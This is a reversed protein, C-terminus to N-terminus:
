KINTNKMLYFHGDEAGVLVDKIDNRNWDVMTPCTTHGALKKKSLNGRDIYYVFGNKQKINELFSINTSNIIIDLDGDNDWDVMCLKRRGSSGAQKDNLRLPETQDEKIQYFIRKGPKLWYENDKKFREFFSLFGEHDLMVLDMLGDHNWDIAIPTTRWQTVLDNSNPNWWNWSPKPVHGQWDVRMNYPGELNSLDGINKYWQIKGWISNIIIDLKGDQDWDAVTPVTYGWKAECPGQISGNPGAQIRIPLNNCKLFVPAAWVPNEGGSLNEIFALDGASNGVILDEDGDKDWDVSYPTALAGFKLNDAKQQFYIPNDFLPMHNINKGTNRFYAIRGDEEGALLDIHGDRNFDVAVPIFMELRIKLIGFNNQLFRGKKFLPRNRTGINEYWTLKDLFEGCILDLDGDGDFDYMNPCPYGYTDIPLKDAKIKGKNVYKGNQNEIYYVYGHLPGNKWKGNLDFANDWGYDSWEDIGIIIDLDGDNDYDVYSWKNSRCRKIDKIPDKDINIESFRSFLNKTFDVYEGKPSLIKLANDVYSPNISNITDAIKIPKEFFPNNNSGINKYFYTGRNPISSCSIVLDMLGDNDYDVPITIPWLGVSLDVRLNPNNYKIIKFQNQDNTVQKNVLNRFNTIRHFTLYNADHFSHAGGISDDYATRSVFVLDSNDYMWDVYQFAHNKVDQHELIYKHTKWTKLDSSSCIALTNRVSAPKLNKYNPLIFNILSWYRKSKNDYRITFKKSAGPMKIFGNKENFSAIKGDKSIQVFAAYEDTSEPIDVRLIDVLNGNPDIVANGELWGGFKKDLYSPNYCLTNTKQWNKAKLLNSNIPASIMMASFRKGWEKTPSKADEFARWIRGENVVIPVPATHYEGGFILGNNKNKPKTWTFGSDKSKRIVINGYEKDTGIIYLEKNITFLTSWYQGSIVSAFKWNEGKDESVFIYTSNTSKPGFDDHSSVYIGNSLICISPSGIYKGSNAPFHDIVVGLPNQISNALCVINLLLILVILNYKILKM